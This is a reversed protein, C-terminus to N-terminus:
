DWSLNITNLGVGHVTHLDKISIIVLFLNWVQDGGEGRMCSTLSIFM